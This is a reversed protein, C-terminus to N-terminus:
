YYVGHEKQWENLKEINQVEYENMFKTRLTWWSDSPCNKQAQAYWDLAEFRLIAASSTETTYGFTYGYRAFIENIAMQSRDHMMKSDDSELTVLEEDTLMTKSSYPFIFDEAPAKLGGYIEITEKEDAKPQIPESQIPADGNLLGGALSDAPTRESADEITSEVTESNVNAIDNDSVTIHKLFSVLLLFIVGLAIAIIISAVGIASMGKSRGPKKNQLDVSSQQDFINVYESDAPPMAEIISINNEHSGSIDSGSDFDDTKLSTGCYPCLEVGDLNNKGCKPCIMKDGGIVINVVASVGATTLIYM